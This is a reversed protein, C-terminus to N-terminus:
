KSYGIIIQGSNVEHNIMSSRNYGMMIQGNNLQLITLTGRLRNGGNPDGAMIKWSFGFKTDLLHDTATSPVLLAPKAGFGEPGRMEGSKFDISVGKLIGKLLPHDGFTIRSSNSTFPLKFPKSIPVLVQQFVVYEYFQQRSINLRSDYQPPINQAANEMVRSLAAPSGGVSAVRYQLEETSISPRREFLTILQGQTPLLSMLKSQWQSSLPLSSSSLNVTNALATAVIGLLCTLSLARTLVM